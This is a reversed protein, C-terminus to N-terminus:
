KEYRFYAKIKRYVKKWLSLPLDLVHPYVKTLTNKESEETLQKEKRESSDDNITQPYNSSDDINLIIVSEDDSELLGCQCLNNVFIEFENNDELSDIQKQPDNGKNYQDIFWASMADSMMLLCGNTFSCSGKIWEGCLTGDSHIQNPYNDFKVSIHGNKDIVVPNSCICQVPQGEHVLFLCSDGIIQWSLINNNLEIGIFTASGTRFRKEILKFLYLAERDLNSIYAEKRLLFENQMDVTPFLEVNDVNIFSNTLINAWIEPLVSDSVGDSLAFRCKEENIAISDQISSFTQGRKHTIFSKVRM